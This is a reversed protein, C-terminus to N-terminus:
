RLDQRPKSSFPEEVIYSFLEVVEVEVAVVVVKQGTRGKVQM